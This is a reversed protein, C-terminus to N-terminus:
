SLSSIKELSNTNLSLIQSSNGWISLKKKARTSATYFIEKGSFTSKEPLILLVEEYESGQSKHVSLIYSFAYPISRHPFSVFEGKQSLVIEGELSLKKEKKRGIFFGKMGNFLNKQPLNQTLLIPAAWFSFLPVQNYFNELLVQNINETGWLGRRLPSLIQFRDKKSFLAKKDFPTKSCFYYFPTIYSLFEQPFPFTYPWTFQALSSSNQLLTLTKETEKELVAKAFIALDEKEFRVAVDLEKNLSPFRKCFDSFFSGAEVPPLQNPDGMLILRSNKKVRSLLFAMLKADIMSAEDILILDYILPSTSFSPTKGPYIQLLSHLTLISFNSIEELFSLKEQLHFTAKGTPASVAVISEPYAEKYSKLLSAATHTKGTGPGGTIFTIPSSFVTELAKKQSPFLSSEISTSLPKVSFSLIRELNKQIQIEYVWAKQLYFGNKYFCLPKQPFLTEKDVKEVLDSPLSFFAKKIEEESLIEQLAPDLAPSFGSEKIQICLHGKRFISMLYALCFATKEETYLPKVYTKAFFLDFSSFIGQEKGKQLLPWLTFNPLFSM